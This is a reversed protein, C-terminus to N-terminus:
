YVILRAYNLMQEVDQISDVVKCNVYWIVNIASVVYYWAVLFISKIESSNMLGM